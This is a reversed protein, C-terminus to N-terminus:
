YRKWGGLGGDPPKKEGTSFIKCFIVNERQCKIVTIRYYVWRLSDDYRWDALRCVASLLPITFSQLCAAVGSRVRVPCIAVRSQFGERLGGGQPEHIRPHPM